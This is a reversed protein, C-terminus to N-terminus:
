VLGHQSSIAVGVTKNQTLYKRRRILGHYKDTMSASDSIKLQVIKKESYTHYVYNTTSMIKLLFHEEGFLNPVNTM